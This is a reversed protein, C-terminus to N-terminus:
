YKYLETAQTVTVANLSFSYQGFLSHLFNNTVATFDTNDLKTGDAKTLKGRSYLKINLDVYTDNDVPILFELESQEVSAIPKYTVETTEVVSTQIPRPAFLAFESSLSVSM